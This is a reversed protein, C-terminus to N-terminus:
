IAASMTSSCYDDKNRKTLLFIKNKMFADKRLTLGQEHLNGQYWGKILPPLNEFSPKYITFIIQILFKKWVRM